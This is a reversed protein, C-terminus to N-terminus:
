ADAGNGDETEATGPFDIVFTSGKGEASQVDITGGQEAVIGHVTSLGLGTGGQAYRTSYFPDFARKVQETNMGCGNDAVVARVHDGKKATELTVCGGQSCAHVANHILNVFVQELEVSNGVVHLPQGALRTTISIGRRRAYERTFNMSAQMVGNLDCRKKDTARGRTFHLVNNVIHACRSVDAKVERLARVCTGSRM